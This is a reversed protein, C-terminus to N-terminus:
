NLSQALSADLREGCRNNAYTLDQIMPEASLRSCSASGGGVLSLLLAFSLPISVSVTGITAAQSPHTDEACPKAEGALNATFEPAISHASDSTIGL